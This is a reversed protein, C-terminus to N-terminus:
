PFGVPWDQDNAVSWSDTYIRCEETYIRCETLNEQKLAQCVTYLQAFQSNKTHSKGAEPFKRNQFGLPEIKNKGYAGIPMYNM